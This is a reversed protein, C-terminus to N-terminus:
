KRGVQRYLVYTKCDVVWRVGKHWGFCGEMAIMRCDQSSTHDIAVGVVVEMRRVTLDVAAKRRRGVRLDVVAEMRHLVKMEVAVMYSEVMKLGAVLEMRLLGVVAMNGERRRSGVVALNHIPVDEVVMEVIDGEEWSRVLGQIHYM